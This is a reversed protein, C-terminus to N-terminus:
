YNQNAKVFNFLLHVAERRTINNKPNFTKSNEKPFLELGKALAVAGLYDPNITNEDTYGTKYIGKIKALRDLGLSEILSYALKERTILKTSSYDDERYSSRHGLKDLLQNMEGETISNEPNFHDGEFGINMDSLLLIDRNEKTDDIDKYSYPKITVYEEGNSDLQKGTFPSIYSPSIDPRYVLRVEYAM